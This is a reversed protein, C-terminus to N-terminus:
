TCNALPHSTSLGMRLFSITMHRGLSCISEQMRHSTNLGPISFAAQALMSSLKFGCAAQLALGQLTLRTLPSLTLSDCGGAIRELAEMGTNASDAAQWLQNASTAIRGGQAQLVGELRKRSTDSLSPLRRNIDRCVNELVTLSIQAGLLLPQSDLADSAWNASLALLPDTAGATSRRAHLLATLPEQYAVSL